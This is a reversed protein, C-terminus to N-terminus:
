LAALAKAIRQESVKGVTGLAPAYLSIRLEEQQFLVAHWGEGPGRPPAGAEVVAGLRAARGLGAVEPRASQLKKEIGAEATRVRDMLQRDRPPQDVMADVRAVAAEVWRPLRLLAAESLGAIAAPEGMQERWDKVDALNSLIVLSSSATVKKDLATFATLASVLAPLLQDVRQALGGQAARVLATVEPADAGSAGQGAATVAGQGDAAGAVTRGDAGIGRAALEGRAAVRLLADLLADATTQHRALILKEQTTLHEKVYALVPGAQAVVRDVLQERTPVAAEAATGGRRARGAGAATSADAAGAGRGGAAGADATGAGPKGAGAKGAGRTGAAAGDASGATKAAKAATRRRQEAQLAALDLGEALVRRGRLLRYRMRLHAPVRSLDFDATTVTIPNRDELRGGGGRATLEAALVEPLSGVGEEGAARVQQLIDRAVDPAPVFYTRKAKPLSRILASMYEIRLGPVHWSFAHPDARDLDRLQFEATVGDGATGPEFAYRLEARADEELDSRAPLVWHTPYDRALDATRDAADEALLTELPVDLFSPDERRKKRWWGTFDSATLVDEPVREDYFAYLDDEGALVRRDRTRSALEEAEALTTANTAMFKHQERWDGEVLAHRIFLERAVMRDIRAYSVPRETYLTVGYLTAKESAVAQGSKASWRPEAHTRKVLDGAVEVVWDPDAWAVTRAWLRSTEVLEAAMVFDPGKKFLGSGPFIQFRAGRAGQYERGDPLKQGIM